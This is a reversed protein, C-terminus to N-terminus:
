GGLRHTGAAEQEDDEDQRQQDDGAGKRDVL